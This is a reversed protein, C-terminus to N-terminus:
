FKWGYNVEVGNQYMQITASGGGLTTAIPGTVSTRFGHYYAVNLEGREGVKKTFGFTLHDQTVVPALINFAVDAGEIPNEGHNWGMRLTWTPNVEYQVGVKFVDIDNWGFGAGGDNGLRVNRQTLYSVPNSLANVESYNIRLYDGVVTVAPHVMVALGATFTSPTDLDGDEALLGAYTDFKQVAIRPAYAVGM